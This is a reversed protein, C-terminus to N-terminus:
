KRPSHEKMWTDATAAVSWNWLRQRLLADGALHDARWSAQCDESFLLGDDDAPDGAPNIAAFIVPRSGEEWSLMKAKALLNLPWPLFGWIHTAVHWGPNVSRFVSSSPLAAGPPAAAIVISLTSVPLPKGTALPTTATPLTAAAPVALVAATVRSAVAARLSATFAIQAM